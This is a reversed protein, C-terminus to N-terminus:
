IFTSALRRNRRRPLPLDRVTKTAASQNKRCDSADCTKPEPLEVIAPPEEDAGSGPEVQAVQFAVREIGKVLTPEGADTTAAESEAGEAKIAAALKVTMGFIEAQANFEPVHVLEAADESTDMPVPFRKKGSADMPKPATMVQPEAANIVHSTVMLWQGDALKRVATHGEPILAEVRNTKEGVTTDLWLRSYRNDKSVVGHVGITTMTPKEGSVTSMRATQGNFFTLKPAALISSGKQAQVAELLRARGVADVLGEASRSSAPDKCANLDGEILLMEVALALDGTGRVEELLESIRDHMPQTQRIVLSLTGPHPVIRAGGGAEGWCDAGTRLEILDLLTEFDAAHDGAGPALPLVLDAVHYTRTVFQLSGERASPEEGSLAPPLAFVGLLVFATRALQWRSM